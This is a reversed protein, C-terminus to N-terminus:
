QESARRYAGRGVRVLVGDRTLRSLVSRGSMRTCGTAQMINRTTVTGLQDCAALVLSNLEGWPVKRPTKPQLYWHSSLGIM